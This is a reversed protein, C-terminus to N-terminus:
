CGCGGRRFSSAAIGRPSIEVAQNSQARTAGRLWNSPDVMEDGTEGWGVGGWWREEEEGGRMVKDRKWENRMGEDERGRTGEEGRGWTGEKGQGEDGRGRRGLDERGGGGRRRKEGGGTRGRVGCREEEGGGWSGVEGGERRVENSLFLSQLSKPDPLM